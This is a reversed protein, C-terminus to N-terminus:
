RSSWTIKLHSGAERKAPDCRVPMAPRPPSSGILRSLIDGLQHREFFGPSQQHLHIFLRNRLNLIFREGVWTSLYQDTGSVMGEVVAVGIYATAIM